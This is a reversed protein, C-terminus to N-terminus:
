RRKRNLERPVSHSRGKPDTVRRMAPNHAHPSISRLFITAKLVREWNPTITTARPSEKFASLNKWRM